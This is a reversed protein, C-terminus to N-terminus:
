RRCRIYLKGRHELQKLVMHVLNKWRQQEALVMKVQRWYVHDYWFTVGLADIRNLRWSLRAFYVEPVMM